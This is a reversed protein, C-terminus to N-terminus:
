YYCHGGEDGAPEARPVEQRYEQEEGKQDTAGGAGRGADDRYPVGQCVAPAVGIVAVDVRGVPVPEPLFEIIGAVVDVEDPGRGRRGEGPVREIPAVLAVTPEGDAPDHVADAAATLERGPELAVVGVDGEHQDAGVVDEPVDGHLLPERVEAPEDVGEAGPVGLHHDEDALERRRAVRLPVLVLTQELEVAAQGPPGRSLRGRPRRDADDVEERPVVAPVVVLRVAVDM